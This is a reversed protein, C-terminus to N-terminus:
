LAELNDNAQTKFSGANFEVTDKKITVPNKEGKVAVENLVRVDKKMQLTGFDVAPKANSIDFAQVYNKLGLQSVILRYSGNKLDNITFDGNKGSVSSKELTSDSANVVAITAYDVPKNTEDVLKGKIQKKAPQAIATFSTLLFIFIASLLNKKM